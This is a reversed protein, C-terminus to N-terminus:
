TSASIELNRKAILPNYVPKQCFITVSLFINFLLMLIYRM